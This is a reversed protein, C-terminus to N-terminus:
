DHCFIALQDVTIPAARHRVLARLLEGVRDLLRDFQWSGGGGLGLGKLQPFRSELRCM